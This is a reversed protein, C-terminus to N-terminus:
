KAASDIGSLRRSCELRNMSCCVLRLTNSEFYARAATYIDSSTRKSVSRITLTQHNARSVQKSILLRSLWKNNKTSGSTVPLGTETGSDLIQRLNRRVPLRGTTALKGAMKQKLFDARQFRRLLPPGSEATNRDATTLQWPLRGGTQGSEEALRFIRSNIPWHALFLNLRWLASIKM